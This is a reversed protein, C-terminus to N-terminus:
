HLQPAIPDNAPVANLREQDATVTVGLKQLLSELVISGGIRFLEPKVSNNGNFLQQLSIYQACEEASKIGGSVKVGITRNSKKIAQLLVAVADLSAGGHVHKGTSTKICDAGSAIAIFVADALDYSDKYSATELISKLTIGAPCALRAARIIDQAHGPRVDHPQVIDIQRAGDGVARSVDEATTEVTAFDDRNTRRDGYPFNIVTSIKVDTGRLIRAAIKVKDPFVCITPLHYKIATKCLNLIDEDTEKGSLSTLDLCDMALRAIEPTVNTQNQAMKVKRELEPPLYLYSKKPM